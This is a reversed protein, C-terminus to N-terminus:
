FAKLDFLKISYSPIPQGITQFSIQVINAPNFKKKAGWGEQTLDSFKVTIEAAKDTPAVFVYGYMDFDKVDSTEVKVRYKKGDGKTKFTIGKGTKLIQLTPQDPAVAIGIFGYQYKTTVAGTATFVLYEKGDVTETASSFKVTSSGGNASDTYANWKSSDNFTQAGAFVACFVALLSGILVRKMM